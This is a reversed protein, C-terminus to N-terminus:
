EGSTRQNLTTFYTLGNIETMDVIRFGHSDLIEEVENRTMTRDTRADLFDIFKKYFIKTHHFPSGNTKGNKSDSFCGIFRAESPLIRFIVHLFSDLHKIYNLKKINVLVRVGALDNQDYYFHHKSSLVLLDSEQMFGRRGLYSLFDDGGEALLKERVPNLVPPTVFSQKRNYIKDAVQIKILETESLNIAQTNDMKTSNYM